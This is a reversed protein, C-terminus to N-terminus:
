TVPSRVVARETLLGFVLGLAVGNLQQALNGPGKPTIVLTEREGVVQV